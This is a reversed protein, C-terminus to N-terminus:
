GGIAQDLVEITHQAAIFVEKTGCEKAAEANLAYPRDGM